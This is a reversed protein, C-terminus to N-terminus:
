LGARQRGHSQSDGGTLWDMVRKTKIEKFWIGKFILKRRRVADDDTMTSLRVCADRM